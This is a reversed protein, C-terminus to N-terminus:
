PLAARAKRFHAIDVSSPFAYVRPHRDRKAEFLSFGGTFVLDARSLLEQERALMAPPAGRFASLEDMCDYIVTRAEIHDSFAGSMPTYYWLIPRVIRHAALFRDLLDRQAAIQEEAGLRSPLRPVLVTVGSATEHEEMIANSGDAFVPEELYYVRMTRAFRTMLHQPRQFVFNWRLHSFCLLTSQRTAHMAAAAM